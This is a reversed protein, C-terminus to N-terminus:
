TVDTTVSTRGDTTTTASIRNKTDAIDRYKPANADHGSSKGALASRMLRLLQRITETSEYVEDWVADVAAATLGMADGTAAPSAPLNDTKAKIAAVETDLFDDIASLQTDLNAAALGLASRVGAADLTSLGSQIETVASAAIADSDIADTAIAAATVTGAAMAGVSSDMRGGVLVAPLRAQIDAIETDIYGAVTSLTAATALGVQIETTFDAATAAATLVDAAMAGVSSDMRGGVLAAPLRTQIDNTDAMIDGATQLTGGVRLTDAKINGDATLAAPLRAQIDDTDAQVSSLPLLVTGSWEVNGGAILLDGEAPAGGAREYATVSYTGAAAAPFTGAYLASATGQETLAIDYNALDATAYAVFTSTTTQWVSGTANRVLAYVTKATLHAVQIESAM